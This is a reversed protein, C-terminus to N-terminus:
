CIWGMKDNTDIALGRGGGGGIKLIGSPLIGVEESMKEGM